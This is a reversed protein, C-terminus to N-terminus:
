TAPSSAAARVSCGCRRRTGGAPNPARARRAAPARERRRRPEAREVREREISTSCARWTSTRTPRLARGQRRRAAHRAGVVPRERADLPGLALSVFQEPGPDGPPLFPACDNRPTTSAGVGRDAEPRTIPPGGPNGGGLAGFFIDEQRWVVGKPLGTTGGTYLVYHDDASRAGFDRTPSAPACSRTRLTRRRRRRRVLRPRRRVCTARRRAAYEADHVVRSSTPTTAAPVRARRRRLPLERQDPGRAAQLVRADGRPADVSNRLYCGVHTAPASAATARARARAPDRADDLERTPAARRDGCSSPRASPCRTPSASSCIPSTSSCAASAGVAGSCDSEPM